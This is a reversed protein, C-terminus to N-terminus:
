VGTESFAPSVTEPSRRSRAVPTLAPSHTPQRQRRFVPQRGSRRDGVDAHEVDGGDGSGRRGFFGQVGTGAVTSVIGTATVKRIRRNSKDTVYLNGSADMALGTVDSFMAATAPGGDGSYGSVGTGRSPPFSGGRPSEASGSIEMDAIYIMGNPGIVVGWPLNLAASGAAGGDGSFAVAGDGALTTIITQATAPSAALLICAVPILPIAGALKLKSM